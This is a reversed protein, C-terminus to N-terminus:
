TWSITSPDDEPSAQRTELSSEGHQTLTASRQPQRRRVTDAGRARYHRVLLPRLITRRGPLDATPRRRRLRDRCGPGLPRDDRMDLRRADPSLWAAPCLQGRGYLCRRDGAPAVM